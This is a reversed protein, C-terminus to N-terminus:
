DELGRMLSIVIFGGVFPGAIILHQAIKNSTSIETKLRQEIQLWVMRGAHQPLTGQQNKRLFLLARYNRRELYQVM